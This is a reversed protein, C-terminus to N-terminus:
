LKENKYREITLSILFVGFFIMTGIDKLAELETHANNRLDYCETALILSCILLLLFNM